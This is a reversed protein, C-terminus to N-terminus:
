TFVEEDEVAVIIKPKKMKIRIPQTRVPRPHVEIGQSTKPPSDKSSQKM